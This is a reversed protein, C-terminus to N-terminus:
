TALFRFDAVTRWAAESHVPAPSGPQDRGPGSQGAASRQPGGAGTACCRVFWSGCCHGVWLSYRCWKGSFAMIWSPTEWGEPEESPLAQMSGCEGAVMSCRFPSGGVTIPLIRVRDQRPRDSHRPVPGYGGRGPRQPQNRQRCNRRTCLCIQRVATGTQGAPPRGPHLRPRQGGHLPRTSTRSPHTLFGNPSDAPRM